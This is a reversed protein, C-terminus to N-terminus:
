RFWPLPKILLPILEFIAWVIFAFVLLLFIGWVGEKFKKVKEKRQLRLYEKKEITKGDKGEVYICKKEKM